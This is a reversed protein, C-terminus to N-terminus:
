TQPPTKVGSSLRAKDADASSVVRGQSTSVPALRVLHRVVASVQRAAQLVTIDGSVTIAARDLVVSPEGACAKEPPRSVLPWNRNRPLVCAWTKCCGMAFAMSAAM